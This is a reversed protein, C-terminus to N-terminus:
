RAVEIAFDSLRAASQLDRRTSASYEIDFWWIKGEHDLLYTRPLRKSAIQALAKGDDDLLVPFTVGLQKVLAAVKVAPDRENIAIVKVKDDGFRKAIDPGLDALQEVAYPNDITWFLVVTFRKGLLAALPQPKGALDKLTMAPFSDGVKVLCTKAHADTLVVKPMVVDAPNVQTAGGPKAPAAAPKAAAPAPKAPVPKAPVPKAPAAGKGKAPQPVPEAALLRSPAIQSFALGVLALVIATARGYRRILAIQRVFSFM